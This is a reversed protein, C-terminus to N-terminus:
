FCFIKVYGMSHLCHLLKKLFYSLVVVEAIAKVLHDLQCFRILLSVDIEESLIVVLIPYHQCEDLIFCQIIM